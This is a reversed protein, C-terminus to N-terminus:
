GTSLCSGLWGSKMNKPALDMYSRAPNRSTARRLGVRGTTRLASRGPPEVVPGHAQRSPPPCGLWCSCNPDRRPPPQDVGSRPGTGGGGREARSGAVMSWWCSGHVYAADPSVLFAVAGAIDDDAAWRGLPGRPHPRQDPRLPRPDTRLPATQQNAVYGSCVANVRIGLPAWENVLAETLQAIGGKSAAYPVNIGGQFSLVSAVTVISGGGGQM